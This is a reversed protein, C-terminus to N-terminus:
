FQAQSIQRTSLNGHPQLILEVTIASTSITVGDAEQRTRQEFTFTDDAQNYVTDPGFYDNEGCWSDGTAYKLIFAGLPVSFTENFGGRIFYSRATRGSLDDLKIFYNRGVATKITLTAIDKGWFPGYWKYIGERPQPRAACADVPVPAPSSAMTVPVKATSPRSAFNAVTFIGLPIAVVALLVIVKRLRYLDRLGAILPHEALPKHCNGCNPIQRFSYARVRNLTGCAECRVERKAPM